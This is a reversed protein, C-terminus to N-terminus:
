VWDLLPAVQLAEGEKISSLVTVVAKASSGM